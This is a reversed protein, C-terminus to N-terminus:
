VCAGCLCVLLFLYIYKFFFSTGLSKSLELVLEYSINCVLRPEDLADNKSQSGYYQLLNMAALSSVRSYIASIPTRDEFNSIVRFIAIMRDMPFPKPGMELPSIKLKSNKRTGSSSARIGGKRKRSTDTASTTGFVFRDQKPPNFSALFSAILLYKASESLQNAISHTQTAELDALSPPAINERQKREVNEGEEEDATSNGRSGPQSRWWKEPLGLAIMSDVGYENHFLHKMMMRTYPRLKSLTSASSSTSSVKQKKRSKPPQSNGDKSATNPEITLGVYIPVLLKLLQFIERPNRTVGIFVNVIYGVVQELTNHDSCGDPAFVSMNGMDEGSEIHHEISRTLIVTLDEKSYASFEIPILPLGASAKDVGPWSSESILIPCLRVPVAEGIRFVAPLFAPVARHLVDASDIVIYATLHSRFVCLSVLSQSFHVVRDRGTMLHAAEESLTTDRKRKSAKSNKRLKSVVDETSNPDETATDVGDM